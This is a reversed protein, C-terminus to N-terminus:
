FKQYHCHMRWCCCQPNYGRVKEQMSNLKDHLRTVTDCSAFCRDRTAAQNLRDQAETHQNPECTHNDTRLSFGDQCECHYSGVTNICTHECDLSGEKCEDVDTLFIFLIIYFYHQGQRLLASCESPSHSLPPISWTDKVKTNATCLHNVEHVPRIGLSHHWQIPHWTSGLTLRFRTAFLFIAEGTM